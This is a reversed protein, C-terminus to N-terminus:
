QALGGHEIACEFGAVFRRDADTAQRLLRQAEAAARAQQLTQEVAVADEYRMPRSAEGDFIREM